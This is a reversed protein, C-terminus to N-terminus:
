REAAENRPMQPHDGEVPVVPEEVRDSVQRAPDHREEDDGLRELAEAPEGEGVGEIVAIVRAPDLEGGGSLV